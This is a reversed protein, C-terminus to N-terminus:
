TPLYLFATFMRDTRYFGVSDQPYPFVSLNRLELGACDVMKRLEAETFAAGFRSEQDGDWIPYHGLATGDPRGRLHLVATGGPKLTRATEQVYSEVTWPMPVHELVGFSFVLDFFDREYASLDFGNTPAAQVNDLDRCFYLAEMVNDKILDVGYATGFTEALARLIRGSGCGIELVRLDKPARGMLVDDRILFEDVTERGTSVYTEKSQPFPTSSFQNMRNAQVFIDWSRLAQQNIVDAILDETAPWRGKLRGIIKLFDIPGKADNLSYLDLVKATDEPPLIFEEFSKPQVVCLGHAKPDNIAFCGAKLDKIRAPRAGGQELVGKVLGPWGAPKVAIAEVLGSSVVPQGLAEAAEAIESLRAFDVAPRHLDLCLAWTGGDVGKIAQDFTELFRNAEHAVVTVDAGLNGAMRNFHTESHVAEGVFLVVEAEGFVRRAEDIVLRLLYEGGVQFLCLPSYQVFISTSSVIRVM